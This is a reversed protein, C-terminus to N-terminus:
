VFLVVTKYVNSSSYYLITCLTLIESVVNPFEKTQKDSHKWINLWDVTLTDRKGSVNNQM